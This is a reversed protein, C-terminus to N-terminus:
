CTKVACQREWAQALLYGKQSATCQEALEVKRQLAKQLESVAKANTRRLTHYYRHSQQYQYCLYVALSEWANLLLFLVIKTDQHKERAAYVCKAYDQCLEM